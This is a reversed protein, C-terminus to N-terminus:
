DWLIEGNPILQSKCDPCYFSRINSNEDFNNIIEQYTLEELKAECRSCKHPYYMYPIFGSLLEDPAVYDITDKCCSSWPVSSPQYNTNAQKKYLTLSNNTEISGCSRCIYPVLDVGIAGDPNDIFFQKYETGYKGNKADELTEKYARPYFLGVDLLLDVSYSCHPCSFCYGIGM